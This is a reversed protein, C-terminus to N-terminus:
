LTLGGLAEKRKLDENARTQLSKEKRFTDRDVCDAWHPEGMGNIPMSKGSKTKIWWIQAKCTPGSCTAPQGIIKILAQLREEATKM